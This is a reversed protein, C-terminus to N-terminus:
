VQGGTAIAQPLLKNLDEAKMGAQEFARAFERAVILEDALEEISTKENKIDGTLEALIQPNGIQKRGLIRVAEERMAKQLIEYEPEQRDCTLRLHLERLEYAAGDPMDGALHLQAFRILRHDFPNRAYGHWSGKITTDVGSRKSLTIALAEKGPVKKAAKEAVRVLTLADQLSEMHHAIVVGVSLTPQCDKGDDPFAFDKLRKKFEDALERACQLVTHLPVFALVDDGGAYVLSGNHTKNVIASVAKAFESLQESLKRHKEMEGNLSAIQVKGINDIVKGMNDGDALLLAYYPLPTPPPNDGQFAEKLFNSLARKADDLQDKDFFERLRESFLMHGDYDQFIEHKLHKPVHGVVSQLVDEEIVGLLQTIKELYNKVARTAAEKDKTALRQLLPLAAVHSTSFFGEENARNGNRKLLGVGCLRENERLGYRLFQDKPIQGNKLMEYLNEDIVSERQGDLSSKPANSSWDESSKFNRTAKRANLLLEANERAQSYASEDNLPYASWFVEVLDKVQAFAKGEYFLDNRPIRRYADKMIQVLRVQIAEGVADGAAKPNDVVALIKNVVNFDSNAKPDIDNISQVSPFVLRSLNGTKGECIAFAAARSLESLIWSGFWLDRSRRATAIFDQVPGISISLLYPM